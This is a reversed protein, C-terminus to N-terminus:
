AKSNYDPFNNLVESDYAVCQRLEASKAADMHSYNTLGLMQLTQGNHILNIVDSSEGFENISMVHPSDFPDSTADTNKM